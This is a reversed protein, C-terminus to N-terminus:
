LRYDNTMDFTHMIFSSIQSIVKKFPNWTCRPEIKQEGFKKWSIASDYNEYGCLNQIMMSLVDFQTSKIM